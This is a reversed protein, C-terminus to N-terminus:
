QSPTGFASRYPRGVLDPLSSIGSTGMPIRQADGVWSRLRSGCDSWVIGRRLRKWRRTLLGPWGVSGGLGQNARRPRRLVVFGTQRRRCERRQAEAGGRSVRGKKLRMGHAQNRTQFDLLIPGCLRPPASSFCRFCLCEPGSLGRPRSPSTLSPPHQRARCCQTRCCVSGGVRWWCGCQLFRQWGLDAQECLM